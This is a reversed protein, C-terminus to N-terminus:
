PAEVPRPNPRTVATGPSRQPEPDPAGAQREALRALLEAERHLRASRAGVAVLYM